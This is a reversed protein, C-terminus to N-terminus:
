RSARPAARCRAASGDCRSKSYEDALDNASDSWRYFLAEAGLEANMKELSVGAKVRADIWDMYEAQLDRYEAATLARKGRIAKLHAALRGTDPATEAVSTSPATVFLTVAFIAKCRAANRLSFM